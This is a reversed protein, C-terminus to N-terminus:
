AEYLDVESFKKFKNAQKAPLELSSLGIAEHKANGCDFTIRVGSM